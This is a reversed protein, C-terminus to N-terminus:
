VSNQEPATGAPEPLQRGLLAALNALRRDESGSLQVTLRTLREADVQEWVSRDTVPLLLLTTLCAAVTQPNSEELGLLLAPLVGGALLARRCRPELCLNSVAAAAFRRLAADPDSLRALLLRPAGLRLLHEANRPDYAFNAINALVQQRAAPQQSEQLEELLDRLYLYREPHPDSM